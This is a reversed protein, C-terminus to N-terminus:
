GAYITLQFEATEQAARILLNQANTPQLVQCCNVDIVFNNTKDYSLWLPFQQSQNVVVLTSPEAVRQLLLPQWEETATLSYEKAREVRSLFTNQSHQISHLPLKETLYYIWRVIVLQPLNDKPCITEEKM